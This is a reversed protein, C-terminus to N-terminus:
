ALEQLFPYHIKALTRYQMYSNFMVWVFAAIHFIAM